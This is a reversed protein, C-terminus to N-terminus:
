KQYIRVEFQTLVKLTELYSLKKQDTEGTKYYYPTMKFLRHIATNNELFIEKEISIKDILNLGEFATDEYKNLYVNDYINEKLELLHKELPVVKIFIGGKKLVRVVDFFNPAFVNLVIDLSQDEFPLSSASAVALKIGSKRKAAVARSEKSIDIGFFEMYVGNDKLFTKINDSYYCEGCGLDLFEGNNSSYKLSQTKLVDLLHRYYGANLFDQRSIAMLKDDGHRKKSSKQSLLLNIYVHKSIDVGHNLPCSASKEDYILTNKCIHCSYSM